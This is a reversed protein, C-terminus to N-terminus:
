KSHSLDNIFTALKNSYEIISEKTSLHEMDVVHKAKQYFQNRKDLTKEIFELLEEENKGEILPRKNKCAMLRAALAEPSSQLYIVLGANNMYEINDFFCPTGGGTSIVVKEFSGVEKLMTQEIQRFKEEGQEEFIQAITKQFRSEIYHDLDFFDYDLAKALQKGITTKGAGMFGILFIRDM